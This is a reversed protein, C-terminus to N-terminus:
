PKERLAREIREIHRAEEAAREAALRTVDPDSASARIREYFHKARRENRLAMELARRPKMLCRAVPLPGADVTDETQWRHASLARPPLKLDAAKRELEELQRYERRALDLFLEAVETKRYLLLQNAFEWYRAAAEREIELAHAYFEKVSSVSKRRSPM